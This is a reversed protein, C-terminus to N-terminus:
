REAAASSSFHHMPYCSPESLTSSGDREAGKVTKAKAQDVLMVGREAIGGWRADDCDALLDFQDTSDERRCAPWREM